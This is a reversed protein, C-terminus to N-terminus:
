NEKQFTSLLFMQCEGTSDTFRRIDCFLFVCSAIDGKIQTLDDITNRDLTNRIIEAGATGYGVKLLSSIRNITSM